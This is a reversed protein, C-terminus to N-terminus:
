VEELIYGDGKDETYLRNLLSRAIEEAKKTRATYYKMTTKISEHGALRMLESAPCGYDAMNSCFTHRLSHFNLDIKLEENFVKSWRKVANTNFYVGKEDVM